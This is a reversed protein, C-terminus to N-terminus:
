FITWINHSNIDRSASDSQKPNQKNKLADGTPLIM